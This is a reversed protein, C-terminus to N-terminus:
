VRPTLTPSGNSYGDYSNGCDGYLGSYYGWTKVRRLPPKKTVKCNLAYRHLAHRTQWSAASTPETAAPSKSTSSFTKKLAEKQEDSVQTPFEVDFKVRVDGMDKGTQAAVVTDVPMGLGKLTIVMGPTIPGPTLESSHVKYKEGNLKFINVSCGALSQVLSIKMNCELDDGDRSYYDHAKQQVIVCLKEGRDSELSMQTGHLCGRPVDVYCQFGDRAATAPFKVVRRVGTYLEELTCKVKKTPTQPTSSPPPPPPLDPSFSPTRLRKARGSASSTSRDSREARDTSIEPATESPQPGLEKKDATPQLPLRTPPVAFEPPTHYGSMRIDTANAAAQFCMNLEEGIPSALHRYLQEGYAFSKRAAQELVLDYNLRTSPDKLVNYAEEVRGYQLREEEETGLCVGSAVRGSRRDPHYKLVLERYRKKLILDSLTKPDLGLVEYHTLPKTRVGFGSSSM